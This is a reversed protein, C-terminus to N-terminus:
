FKGAAIDAVTVRSVKYTTTSDPTKGVTGDTYKLPVGTSANLTMAGESRGQGNLSPTVDGVVLTPQGDLTGHTVVLTAGSGDRAVSAVSGSAAASAALPAATM